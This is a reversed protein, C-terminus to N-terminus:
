GSHIVDDQQAVTPICFKRLSSVHKLGLPSEKLHAPLTNSRSLVDSIDRFALRVALCYLERAPYTDEIVHEM